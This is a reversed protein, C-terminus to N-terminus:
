SLFREVARQFEESHYLDNHGKGEILVYEKEVTPVSEFLERSFSHPITKDNTGHLILLRGRFGSLWETNNYKEKILISAPYIITFTQAVEDMNAFPAILILDVPEKSAHYSAPASGLSEGCVTVNSLGKEKLYSRVNDVDNLILKRSPTRNDNSYGAYEVFLYSSNAGFSSKLFNRDCASRANGHYFVIAQDNGQRFYMRTGLYDVKEYDAFGPCEEFDQHDPFYILSGQFLYLIGGFFLYVFSIIVVFDLMAKLIRHM